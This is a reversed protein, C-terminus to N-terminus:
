YIRISPWVSGFLASWASRQDRRTLAFTINKIPTSIFILVISVIIKKIIIGAPLM